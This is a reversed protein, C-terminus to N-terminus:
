NIETLLKTQSFPDGDPEMVMYHTAAVTRDFTLPPLVNYSNTSPTSSQLTISPLNNDTLSHSRSHTNSVNPLRRLSNLASSNRRNRNPRNKHIALLASFFEAHTVDPMAHLKAATFNDKLSPDLKITWGRQTRPCAKVAM